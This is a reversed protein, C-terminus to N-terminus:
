RNREAKRHTENRKKGKSNRSMKRVKKRKPAAKRACDSEQKAKRQRRILEEVAKLTTFEREEGKEDSLVIILNEKRLAAAFRKETKYRGPPLANLADAVLMQDHLFLEDHRQSEAQLAMEEARDGEQKALEPDAAILLKRALEIAKAPNDCALQPNLQAAIKALTEPNLGDSRM